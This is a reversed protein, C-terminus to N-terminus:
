VLVKRYAPFFDFESGGSTGRLSEYVDKNLIRGCLYAPRTGTAFGRKFRGLGSSGAGLDLFRLGRRFHEIAKAYLAYLAGLRYGDPSSAALHSYAVDGRVLWLHAAALEGLHYGRVMVMGPVALQSEFSARSFAHIGTLGHKEVLVRYLRVWEDVQSRPDSCIDVDIKGIARRVSYRHHKGLSRDSMEGLETIFHDKYVRTLEPFAGTLDPERYNGFPDTVIAVSVLDGALDDLDRKLASWNRCCFLPCPDVADWHSSEPIPRRLVWGGSRSLEVPVGLESLSKAYLASEYSM